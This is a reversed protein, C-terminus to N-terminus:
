LDDWSVPNYNKDLINGYKEIYYMKGNIEAMLMGRSNTSLYDVWKPLIIVGDGNIANFKRDVKIIGFSDFFNFCRDVWENLVLDGNTDIYNWKDKMKVIAFGDSFSGVADMWDSLLLNGEYDIFNCNGKNAVTAYGFKFDGISDVWENLVFEGNTNILNAKDNRSVIGVGNNFESCDDFWEKSLLKGEANIYNMKSSPAMIYAFGQHFQSGYELWKDFLFNHREDIYNWKGCISVNMWGNHFGSGTEDFVESPHEDNNLRQITDAVVEDWKGNPKFVDYFNVGIVESIEKTTMINDSGGNDHNWRCTCSKLAGEEDVCVAIMSLGYEDLPCGETPTQPIQEFGRKLCFYFQSTGNSSYSNFMNKYHTVCWSTYKSFYRADEYSDIRVIDYDYNKNFGMSSLENRDNELDVKVNGAFRDILDQATMGNLNRDYENIHADSSVYKITKNLKTIINGNNLEGDCFMRTVGLIFKGGEPTRLSPIDQRLNIRVFRDAEQEDYGLSQMLLRKAASISKSEQSETLLNGNGSVSEELYDDIPIENVGVIVSPNFLCLIMDSDHLTFSYGDYGERVLEEQRKEDFGDIPEFWEDEENYWDYDNFRSMDVKVEYLLGDDEAYMAAYYPNETLWTCSFKKGIGFDTIDYPESTGRYFSYINENGDEEIVDSDDTNSDLEYGNTEAGTFYSDKILSKDLNKANIRNTFEQYGRDYEADNILSDMISMGKETKSLVEKVASTFEDTSLKVLSTFIYPIMNTDEVTGFLREWLGVGLRLDWPEALIFDAKKVVYQAKRRDEPLGHTSFLEFMGKITEQLLLPFIIGQVKIESKSDGIGIHTEVYSGQMPKDDSMSEKKTFLLYDNIVRIERYLSLLEPNIRDIEDAYLDEIGSYIYSGGQILSNIFRRKSVAKNSLDIDAIDKFTYKVKEDSEPRMRIANKFKVRDVLKLNLNLIEPPIAFLRNVANECIRQLTDRIPRELDKCKKLLHSLESMLGDEGIDDLGMSELEDCVQSYREKLIMYDFPYDGGSPFMDCDGLSTIHNKVMKFLFQPLLRGSTIRSLSSENIYIKKM